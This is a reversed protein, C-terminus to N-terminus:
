IKGEVNTALFMLNDTQDGPYIQVGIKPWRSMLNGIRDQHIRKSKTLNSVQKVLQEQQLGLARMGREKNALQLEQVSMNDVGERQIM